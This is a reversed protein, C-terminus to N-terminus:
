KLEIVTGGIVVATIDEPNIPEEFSMAILDKGDVNETMDGWIMMGSAALWNEKAIEKNDTNEGNNMVAYSHLSETSTLYDGASVGKIYVSIPTVTIEEIHFTGGSDSEFLCDATYTIENPEADAIFEARWYEERGTVYGLSDRETTMNHLRSGHAYVTVKQGSINRSPKAQISVRVREDTEEIVNTSWAGRSFDEYYVGFELDKILNVPIEEPLGNQPTVDIIILASQSDAAAAVIKFDLHDIDDRIQTAESVINTEINESKDGFIQGFVASYDWGSAYGTVTVAMATAAAIGAAAFKKPSIKMKPKEANIISDTFQENDKEPTINEFYDKYISM